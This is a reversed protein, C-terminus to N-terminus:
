PLAPGSVDSGIKSTLRFLLPDLKQWEYFGTAPILCRRSEFAARFSPKTAATEARANILKYGIKPDDAWSPILGWRLGVLERNGEHPRIRVAAVPQSPAINYRAPSELGFPM